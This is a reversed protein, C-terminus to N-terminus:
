VTGGSIQLHTNLIWNDIVIQKSSGKQCLESLYKSTQSIITYFVKLDELECQRLIYSNCCIMVCRMFMIPNIKGDDKKVSLMSGIKFENYLPVSGIYQIFKDALEYLNKVDIESCISIDKPCTSIEYVISKVDNPFVYQRQETYEVLDDKSYTSLYFISARSVLTGLVSSIDRVTMVFYANNPPEETVKLLANKASVSMDDCDFFMYLSSNSITYSEYIVQRVSEVKSECPVFNCGLKKSLWECVVKKGFGEPAVLIIFRPVKQKNVLDELRTLLNKQGCIYM